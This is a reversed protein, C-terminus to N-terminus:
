AALSDLRHGIFRSLWRMVVRGADQDAVALTGVRTLIGRVPRLLTM